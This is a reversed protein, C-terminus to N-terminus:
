LLLRTSDREIVRPEVTVHRSLTVGEKLETELIDAAMEAIRGYPYHVTTLSPQTSSAILLDDCGIVGVEQPIRKNCAGCAKVFAVALLDHYCFVGAPDNLGDMYGEMRVIGADENADLEAIHEGPLEYGHAKLTDAYGKLRMDKMFHTQSMGIYGFQRYGKGILHLAALRGVDYNDVSVISRAFGRMNRGLCVVPIPSNEFARHNNFGRHSFFLVGSMGMDVMLELQRRETEEDSAHIAAFLDCNRRNMERRLCELMSGYFGNDAAPLLIGFCAKRRKIFLAELESGIACRGTTVYQKVGEQRIIHRNRLWGAAKVATVYSCGTKAAIERVSMFRSGSVGYEGAKIGKELKMGTHLVDMDTGEFDSYILNYKSISLYVVSEKFERSTEGM